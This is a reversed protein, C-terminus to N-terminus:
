ILIQSLLAVKRMLKIQSTHVRHVRNDDNFCYFQMWFSKPSNHKSSFLNFPLLLLWAWLVPVFSNPEKVVKEENRPSNKCVSIRCPCYLSQKRKKKLLQKLWLLINAVWSELPGATRYAKSKWRSIAVRKDWLHAWTGNTGIQRETYDSLCFASSTAKTDCRMIHLM